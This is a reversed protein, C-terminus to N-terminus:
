LGQRKLYAKARAEFPKLPKHLYADQACRKYHATAKLQHQRAQSKLDQSLKKQVGSVSQEVSAKMRPKQLMQEQGGAPIGKQTLAKKIKQIVLKRVDARKPPPAKTFFREMEVHIDGMQCEALLGSMKKKDRSSILSYQTLATKSLGVKQKMIQAMQSWEYPSPYTLKENAAQAQAAKQYLPDQQIERMTQKKACGVFGVMLMLM